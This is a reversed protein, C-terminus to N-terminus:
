ANADRMLHNTVIKRAQLGEKEPAGRSPDRPILTSEMWLAKLLPAHRFHM